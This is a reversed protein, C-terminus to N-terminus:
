SGFVVGTGVTTACTGVTAATGTGPTAADTGVTKLIPCRTKMVFRIVWTRTRQAVSASLVAITVWKVADERMPMQVM